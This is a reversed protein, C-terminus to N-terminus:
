RFAREIKKKLPRIFSGIQDSVFEEIDKQDRGSDHMSLARKTITKAGDTMMKIHAADFPGIIHDKVLKRSVLEGKSTASKIWKEDIEAMTKLSRLWDQFRTNTGFKTLIEHLTWDAFEMIDEPVAVDVDGHEKAEAEKKAKWGRSPAEKKMEAKLAEQAEWRSVNRIRYKVADPHDADIRQGYLAAKLSKKCANAVSTPSVRCFRAFESKSMLTRKAM